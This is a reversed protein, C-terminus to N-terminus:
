GAILRAVLQAAGSVAATETRLVSLALSVPKFPPKAMQELENGSFGGEPGILIPISIKEPLSIKSIVETDRDSYHALLVTQKQALKEYIETFPRPATLKPLYAQRSQKLASICIKQLHDAKFSKVSSNESSFFRIEGVGLETLKEVLWDMRKPRITSVVVIIRQSSPLPMKSLSNITCIARRQRMGAFTASAAHGQGDTLMLSDGSRKRFVKSLHHSEREDLLVETTESLNPAYFHEM